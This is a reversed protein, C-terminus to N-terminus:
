IFLTGRTSISYLIQLETRINPTTIFGPLTSPLILRPPTVFGLITELLYPSCLTFHQREPAQMQPGPRQSQSLATNASHHSRRGHQETPQPPSSCTSITNTPLEESFNSQLPSSPTLLFTPCLSFQRLTPPKLAHSHQSSPSAASHPSSSGLLSFRHTRVCVSPNAKALFSEKM